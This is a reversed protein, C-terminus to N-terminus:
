PGVGGHHSCAGQIGGSHSISGDRCVVTSGNGPGLDVGGGSPGGYTSDPTSYSGDYTNSTEGGHYSCAGSRGGSHSWMGDACQVIYGVGDDFNDICPHTSCFDAGSSATSSSSWRDAAVFSDQVNAYLGAWYRYSATPAQTLVAFSDGVGDSFFIDVKHLLVGNERVVFEWRIADYGQFTTTTFGLRRYGPQAALSSELEQANGAADFLGADPAVDIRLMKNPDRGSRITTDLYGGRAKESTEVTWGAPYEIGFYSGTHISTTTPVQAREMAVRRAWVARLRAKKAAIRAHARERAVARQAALREAKTPKANAQAEVPDAATSGCGTSVVVFAFSLAAILTAIVGPTVLGWSMGKETVKKV